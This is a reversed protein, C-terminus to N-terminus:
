IRRLNRRHVAKFVSVVSVGLWDALSALSEGTQYRAAFEASDYESRRPRAM